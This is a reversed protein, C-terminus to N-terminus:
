IRLYTQIINANDNNYATKTKTKLYHLSNFHVFTSKVQTIFVLLFTSKKTLSLSSVSCTM